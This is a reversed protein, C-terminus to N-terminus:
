SGVGAALEVVVGVVGDAVALAQCGVLVHYVILVVCVIAQGADVALGVGPVVVAVQKRVAQTAVAVVVGVPEGLDHAAGQGGAEGVVARAVAHGLGHVADGGGVHQIRRRPEGLDQLLGGVPLGGGVQVAV